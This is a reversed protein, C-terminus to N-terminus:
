YCNDIISYPLRVALSRFKKGLRDPTQALLDEESATRPCDRVVGDVTWSHFGALQQRCTPLLTRRRVVRENGSTGM